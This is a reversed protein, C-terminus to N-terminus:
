GSISNPTFGHPRARSGQSSLVEDVGDGRGSGAVHRVDLSDHRPETLGLLLQAPKTLREGPEDTMSLLRDFTVTEGFVSATEALTLPTFQHYVGQHRALMAHLGHGLEHALTLM